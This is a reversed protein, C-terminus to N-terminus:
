SKILDAYEILMLGLYCATTNPTLFEEVFSRANEAIKKMEDDHNKAYELQEILDSYDAKIPLYHVYPKILKSFWVNYVGNYLILSNSGLFTPFRFTWGNGDVVILYKSKFQEDYSLRSMVTKKKFEECNGDCQIVASLEIDVAIGLYEWVYKKYDRAWNVLRYRHSLEFLTKHSTKTGTTSGRWVLKKEKSEWSVNDKFNPLSAPVPILIDKYCDKKCFSLVPLLKAYPIWRPCQKSEIFAIWDMYRSPPKKGKNYVIYDKEEATLNKAECETLYLLIKKSNNKEESDSSSGQANATTTFIKFCTYM